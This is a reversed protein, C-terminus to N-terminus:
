DLSIFGGYHEQIAEDDGWGVITKLTDCYVDSHCALIMSDARRQAHGEFLWVTYTDDPECTIILSGSRSSKGNVKCSLGVKFVVFTTTGETKLCSPRGSRCEGESQACRYVFKSAGMYTFAGHLGLGGAQETITRITEPLSKPDM